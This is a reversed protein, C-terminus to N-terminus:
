AENAEMSKMLRDYMEELGVMPRWGLRQMKGSIVKMRSSPPFGLAAVDEPIDFKLRTGAEPHAAILREAMERVSCFTSENSINYAEGKEGKTLLMLLGVVADASYCYCHAKSGDTRLTIDEGARLARAFQAFVRNEDKSIGAGFTQALRAIKVPVGYEHAAAACLGEAMRKSEPYSSRPLLPNVFGLKEETMEIDDARPSGYVEMSSLFVMGRVQKERALALVNETGNLTTLITEYPEEVMQKSTTVAAAHLIYDVRDEVVLRSRIDGVIPV